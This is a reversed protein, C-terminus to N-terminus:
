GKANLGRRLREGRVIETFNEHIDVSPWSL